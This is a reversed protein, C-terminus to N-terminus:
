QNLRKVLRRVIPRPSVRVLAAGVRNSAGPIVIIKGDKWGDYGIRAVDAASMTARQFLRVKTMQAAEAFETATPGPCLCSVRLGSGAVEEAVAETFSLVYAKTAYYVAMWPGAQFAATSGVNLIGGTNREVMGPLFLRTLETLATVNVQVMERQRELPIDVVRGQAGFGANNVLVDITAGARQLQDYLKPAAGPEALDVAMASARIGHTGILEGALQELAEIRRAALVVDYRDRAFARALERGIGASAGTILATPM